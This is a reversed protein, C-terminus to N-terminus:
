RGNDITLYVYDENFKGIEM